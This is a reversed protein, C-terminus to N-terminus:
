TTPVGPSPNPGLPSPYKRKVANPEASFVSFATARMLAYKPFYLLIIQAGTKPPNPNTMRLSAFFRLLFTYRFRSEEGIPESHCRTAFPRVTGCGGRKRPPPVRLARSPPAFDFCFGRAIRSDGRRGYPVVETDNRSIVAFNVPPRPRGGRCVPACHVGRRNTM